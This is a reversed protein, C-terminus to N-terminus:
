PESMHSYIDWTQINTIVKEIKRWARLTVSLKLLLFKVKQLLSCFSYRNCFLVFYYFVRFKSIKIIRLQLEEIDGSYHKDSVDSLINIQFLKIKSKHWYEFNWM